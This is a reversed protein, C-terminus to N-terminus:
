IVDELGLGLFSGLIGASEGVVNLSQACSTVGCDEFGLQGIYLDSYANYLVRIGKGGYLEM